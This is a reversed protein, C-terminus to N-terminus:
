KRMLRYEMPTVKMFRKFTRSFYNLDDFGVQLAVDTISAASHELLVAAKEIRLSNIYNMVSQGTANKFLRCFYPENLYLMEALMATTLKETYHTSIYSFVQNLRRLKAENEEYRQLNQGTKKYNRLLYAILTYIQGKLVLEYGEHRDENERILMQFSTQVYADGCILNEILLGEYDMDAFLSPHLHLCWYEATFSSESFHIENSNIFFLDNAKVHYTENGCNITCGGSAFYLLETHEHWHAAFHQQTNQKLKIPFHRDSNSIKEYLSVDNM